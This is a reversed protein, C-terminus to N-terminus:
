APSSARALDCGGTFADTAGLTTGPGPGHANPLVSPRGISLWGSGSSPALRPCSAARFLKWGRLPLLRSFLYLHLGHLFPERFFHSLTLVHLGARIVDNKVFWLSGDPPSPHSESITESYVLRCCHYRRKALDFTEYSHTRSILSKDLFLCNVILILELLACIWM